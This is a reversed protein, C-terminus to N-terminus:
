DLFKIKSYMYRYGIGTKSARSQHESWSKPCAGQCFSVIKVPILKQAAKQCSMELTLRILLMAEQFNAAIFKNILVFYQNSFSRIQKNSTEVNLLSLTKSCFIRIQGTCLLNLMYKLKGMVCIQLIYFYIRICNWCISFLLFITLNREM